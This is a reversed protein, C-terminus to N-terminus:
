EIQAMEVTKGAFEHTCDSLYEIKGERVFIHCVSCFTPQGEKEADKCYECDPPQKQNPVYHGARNLVSPTLTPSELSGNWGWKPGENKDSVGVHHNSKCGHCYFILVKHGQYENLKAKQM